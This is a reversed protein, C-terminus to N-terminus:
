TRQRWPTLRSSFRFGGASTPAAALVAVLVVAGRIVQQLYASVGTQDMGNQLTLLALLALTTGVISGTGGELRSGGILCAAIGLLLLDGGVVPSGSNLGVATVMGALGALTGSLAFCIIVPRADPLGLLRAARPNAGRAVLSRGWPTAGFAIALVVFIAVGIVIRVTLVSGLARDLNETLDLRTGNIPKSAVMYSVGQAIFLMALSSVLSPVRLLATVLGNFLGALLGTALAAPIAVLLGHPENVILVIGALAAVSAVSLDIEGLAIVFTQGLAVLVAPVAFSLLSQVNTTTAFNPAQVAFVVFVVVLILVSRLPGALRGSRRSARLTGPWSSTRPHVTDATM